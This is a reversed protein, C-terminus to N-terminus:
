SPAETHILPPGVPNVKIGVIDSPTFFLGFSEKLNKGTLQTVGKQVMEGIVKADLKDDVLSRADTVKVVKGPVPGPLAHKGKPVKTFDAINTEPPAPPTAQAAQEAFAPGGLVIGSAAVSCVGATKVFERRDLGISRDMSSYKSRRM